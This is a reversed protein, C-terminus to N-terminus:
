QSAGAESPRDSELAMNQIKQSSEQSSGLDYQMEKLVRKLDERSINGDDDADLRRLTEEVVDDDRAGAILKVVGKCENLSMLGDNDKDLLKMRLGVKTDVREIERELRSVVSKLRRFDSTEEGEAGRLSDEAMALEMKLNRMEEREREVASDSALAELSELMERIGDREKQEAEEDREVEEIPGQTAKSEPLDDASGKSVGLVADALEQEQVRVKEMVEKDSITEDPVRSEDEQSEAALKEAEEDAEKKKRKEEDEKEKQAERQSEMAILQAQRLTEELREANTADGVDAAKKVDMIVDDPLSGLTELLGESDTKEKDETHTTYLLARSMILLSGPIEKSQSLDLWDSLERRMLRTDVERIGREVCAKAVEEDTLSEVGGEWMIEMDDKKIANLKSRLKFRLFLDHGYPSIGMYKCMAVLQPRVAGDITLEDNFFRAFRAVESADVYKGSRIADLFDTLETAEKKLESNADSAKITKAKEEVVDRLYKALELRGKLRRKLNEDSKMQDQFQSPLMNPFLRLAFPLAFEALPIILFLSFPVLRALDVGTKVIFNRERRSIQKGATIKRLIKSSVRVDAALLKAGAWMHKAWDIFARGLQVSFRAAKVPSQLAERWTVRGNTLDKSSKASSSFRRSRQFRTKQIGAQVREHCRIPSRRLPALITSSQSISRFNRRQEHTQLPDKREEPSHLAALVCLGSKQNRKLQTSLIYSVDSNNSHTPAFTQVSRLGQEGIKSPVQVHRVRIVAFSRVQSEYPVSPVFRPYTNIRSLVANRTARLLSTIQPTRM